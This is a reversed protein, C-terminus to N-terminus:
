IVARTDRFQDGPAIAHQGSLKRNSGERIATPAVEDFGEASDHEKNAIIAEPPFPTIVRRRCAHVERIM